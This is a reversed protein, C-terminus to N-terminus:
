QSSGVKATQSSTKQAKKVLQGPVYRHVGALIVQLQEQPLGAIYVADLTSYKVEM